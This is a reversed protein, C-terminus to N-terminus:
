SQQIVDNLCTGSPEYLFQSIKKFRQIVNLDNNYNPTGFGTKKDCCPSRAIFYIWM